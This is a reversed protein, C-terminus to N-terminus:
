ENICYGYLYIWSRLVMGLAVFVNLQKYMSKLDQARYELQRYKMMIVTM